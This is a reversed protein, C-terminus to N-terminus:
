AEIRFWNRDEKTDTSLSSFFKNKQQKTKQM